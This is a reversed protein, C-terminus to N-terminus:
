EQYFLVWPAGISRAEEFVPLLRPPMRETFDEWHEPDVHVMFEWVGPEHNNGRHLFQARDQIWAWDEFDEPGDYGALEEETMLSQIAVEVVEFRSTTTQAPSSVAQAVPVSEGCGRAYRGPLKSEHERQFINWSKSGYIKAMAEMAQGRTVKRQISALYQELIVAQQKVKELM